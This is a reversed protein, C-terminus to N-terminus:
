LAGAARPDLGCLPTTPVSRSSGNRSFSVSPSERVGTSRWPASSAGSTMPTCASPASPTWGSCSGTSVKPDREAQEELEQRIKPDAPADPFLVGAAACRRLPGNGPSCLRQGQAKLESLVQEALDVYDAVNFSEDPDVVDLLHHPVRRREAPTPKATGIDMGRYVQMSDASIIEAKFEEALLLSLETKGVATPGILVLIKQKEVEDRRCAASADSCSKRKWACLSPADMPVPLPNESQALGDVLARMEREELYQGAKVAGKCALTILAEEKSGTTKGANQAIELIEEKWSGASHALFSPVARLIFSSGGFPELEVGFEAM